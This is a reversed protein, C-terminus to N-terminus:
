SRWARVSRPPRWCRGSGTRDGSESRTSGRPSRNPETAPDSIAPGPRATGSFGMPSKIQAILEAAEAAIANDLDEVPEEGDYGQEVSGDPNRKGVALTCRSLANGVYMRGANLEGVTNVYGFAAHQWTRTLANPAPANTASPDMVAAAATLAENIKKLVRSGVSKRANTTQERRGALSRDFKQATTLVSAAEAVVPEAMAALEDPSAEALTEVDRRRRLSVAM